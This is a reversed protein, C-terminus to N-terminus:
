QLHNDLIERIKRSLAKLDFPKQIFVRCGKEMIERAQAGLSYGSSLLVCVDPDIKQLEEFTQGGGMGPMIMDLIVLGITGSNRGYLDIAENGSRATMVQYGLGKLMHLGVDLIMNEDDVLLVTEWGPLIEESLGRDDKAKKTSAPLYIFFTTGEGIKSQVDIFGGHNKVIGYVSALGLGTGRGLEKTTFFPEFIRKKTEEDMGIGTDTISIKVYQGAKIRYLEEFEEGLSVNETKIFLDGGSPMAQWANVYLNLLVQEMQGQDVEVTWLGPQNERLIKIEKKTREFMLSSNRIFDGLDTPKVEYKGGRAFGLLQRTLESGRRVYEEINKIRELNGAESVTDMLLLSANGQIGMLLNNFDHAIGGALTGVAKMRDATELRAELDKKEEEMSKRETIDRTMGIIGTPIGEENLLHTFTVEAWIRSGDKRIHEVELSHYRFPDYYESDKTRIFENKAVSKVMEYSEPMLISKFPTAMAERPTYGLLNEVSPSIYTCHLDYDMTWIVERVNEALMRYKRESERLDLEARRSDTVDRIIGKFGTIKGSMDRRLSVSAEIIVKIGDKRILEWDFAKTPEGTLFVQHFAKFVRTINDQDMLDKFNKGMLEEPSYGVTKVGVPNFFTIKGALDVEYYTDEMNELIHRYKEESSRLREEDKKRETIDLCSAVTQLTDPIVRVTLYVNRIEGSRTIFRFEYENPASDPDSLRLSRCEKMRELDEKVVFETWSKKWEMEIRPYGSLLEFLTNALSITNDEEIIVTATGTNEFITRYREESRRLENETWKHETIDEGTAQIEIVCGGSDYIPTCVWKQWRRGLDTTVTHEFAVRPFGTHLSAIRNRIEHREKAPIFDLFSMGILEDRIKDLYSCYAKNVWTLEGDGPLFRCIYLPLDEAIDACMQGPIHKEKGM